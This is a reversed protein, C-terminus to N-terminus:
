APRSRLGGREANTQTKAAVLRVAARALCAQATSLRPQTALRGATTAAPSIAAASARAQRKTAVRGCAERRSAISPSLRRSAAM